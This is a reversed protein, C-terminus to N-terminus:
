NKERGYPYRYGEYRYSAKKKDEEASTFNDGGDFYFRLLGAAEVSPLPSFAGSVYATQAGACFVLGVAPTIRFQYGLDVLFGIAGSPMTIGDFGYGAQDRILLIPAVGLTIFFKKAAELRFITYPAHISLQNGADWSTSYRYEVGIHFAFWSQQPQLVFAITGKASLGIDSMASTARGFLGTGGMIMSAGAGLELYFRDKALARSPSGLIISWTLGALLLISPRKLM